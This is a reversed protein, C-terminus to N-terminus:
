ALPETETSKHLCHLVAYPATLHPLHGRAEIIELVANRLHAKLYSGVEIPVAPDNKPQIVVTPVSIEALLHRFDSQFIFRATQIAVDAPMNLLGATFELVFEPLPEGVIIPAFGNAWAEYGSHMADFLGNLDDQSFGGHYGDDNLYRPSAAIMFIRRFLDPRMQAAILAVMGSVSHTLIQCSTIGQEDLLALLDDAYSTISVHRTADFNRGGNPGAGALDYVGVDFQKLLEPLLLRWSRHDTGFGHSLVLVPADSLGATNRILRWNHLESYSKASSIDSTSTM